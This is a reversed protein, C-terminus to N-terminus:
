QLTRAPSGVVPDNTRLLRWVPTWHESPFFHFRFIQLNFSAPWPLMLSVPVALLLSRGILTHAEHNRVRCWHPEPVHIFPIFAVCCRLLVRVHGACSRPVRDWIYSLQKVRQSFFSGFSVGFDVPFRCPRM